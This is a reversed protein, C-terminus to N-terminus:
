PHNEDFNSLSLDRAEKILVDGKKRAAETYLSNIAEEASKLASLYAVKEQSINKENAEQKDENIFMDISKRLILIKNIGNKDVLSLMDADYLIKDVMTEPRSFIVEEGTKDTHKKAERQMFGPIPGMHREIANTIIKVRENKFGMELLKQQAIKSSAFGHKLLSSNTKAADHLIAALQVNELDEQSLSEETALEKTYKLITKNHENLSEIVEDSLKSSEYIENVFKKIENIKEDSIDEEQKFYIENKNNEM